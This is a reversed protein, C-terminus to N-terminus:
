LSTFATSRTKIIHSIKLIKVKTHSRNIDIIHKGIKDNSICCKIYKDKDSAM